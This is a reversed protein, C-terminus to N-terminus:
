FSYDVCSVLSINSQKSQYSPIYFPLSISNKNKPEILLYADKNIFSYNGSQKGGGGAVLGLFKISFSSFASHSPLLLMNRNEGETAM